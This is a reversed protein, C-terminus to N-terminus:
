KERPAGCACCHGRRDDHTLGHCYACPKLGEILPIPMLTVPQVVFPEDMSDCGWSAAFNISPQIVRRDGALLARFEAETMPRHQHTIM